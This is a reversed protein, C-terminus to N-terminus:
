VLQIHFLFVFSTHISGFNINLMRVALGLVSEHSPASQVLFELVLSQVSISNAHVAMYLLPLVVPKEHMNQRDIMYQNIHPIMYKLAAQKGGLVRSLVFYVSRSVSDSGDDVPYIFYM